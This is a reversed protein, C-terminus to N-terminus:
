RRRASSVARRRADHPRRAVPSPRHRHVCDLRSSRAIFGFRFALRAARCSNRRHRTSPPQVRAARTLDARRRAADLRRPRRRWGTPRGAAPAVRDRGACPRRRFRSACQGTVRRSPRLCVQRPDVAGAQRCSTRLLVRREDAAHPDLDAAVDVVAAHARPQGRELLTQSADIDHSSGHSVQHLFDFRLDRAGLGRGGLLGDADDALDAVADGPDLAKAVDHQVLHEVEAVADGAQRQVEVLGFDAHDDEAVVRLECSPSSTRAVPLSSCTGTPLPRSPRTTLVSPSGSSPLPGIALM